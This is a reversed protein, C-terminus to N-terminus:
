SAGVMHLCQELCQVSYIFDKKENKLVTSLKAFVEIVNLIHWFGKWFNMFNQEMPFMLQSLEFCYNHKLSLLSNRWLTFSTQWYATWAQCHLDIKFYTFINKFFKFLTKTLLSIFATKHYRTVTTARSSVKKYSFYSNGAM